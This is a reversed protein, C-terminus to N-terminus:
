LSFLFNLLVIRNEIKNFKIKEFQNEQVIYIHLFIVTKNGENKVCNM